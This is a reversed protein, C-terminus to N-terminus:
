YADPNRAKENERQQRKFATCQPHNSARCQQDMCQVFAGLLKDACVDRPARVAVPAAPAPAPAPATPAAVVPPSAPAPAAPSPAADKKMAAEAKAKEAAALRAAQRARAASAAAAKAAVAEPSSAAAQPAATDPAAVLAPTAPAATELTPAVTPATPAVPAAAEVAPTLAPPPPSAAPPQVPSTDPPPQVAVASPKKDAALFWYGAGAVAIVAAIAIGAILGFGSGRTSAAPPAAPFLAERVEAQTRAPASAANSAPEAPTSFLPAAAAGAAGVGFMGPDFAAAPSAPVASFPPPTAPVKSPKVWSVVTANPDEVDPLSPPLSLPPPAVFSDFVIPDTGAPAAPTVPPKGPPAVPQPLVTPGMTALMFDLDQAPAAPPASAAQLSNGCLKCFKAGDANPTFCHPCNISM